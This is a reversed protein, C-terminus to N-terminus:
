KGDGEKFLKDITMEEEEEEEPTGTEIGLEKETQELEGVTEALKEEAGEFFREIYKQKLSTYDNLAKDYEEQPVGNKSSEIANVEATIAEIDEANEENLMKALIAKFNDSPM